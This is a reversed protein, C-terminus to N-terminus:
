ILEGREDSMALHAEPRQLKQSLRASTQKWVNEFWLYRQLEKEGGVERAPKVTSLGPIGDAPSVGRTQQLRNVQIPTNVAPSLFGKKGANDRGGTEWCHM